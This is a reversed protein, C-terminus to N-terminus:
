DDLKLSIKTKPLAQRLAAIEAESFESRYLALQRLWPMELFEPPLSTLGLGSFDLIKLRKLQSIGPPITAFPYTGMDGDNCYCIALEELTTADYLQAPFVKLDCANITIRRIAPALAVSPEDLSKLAAVEEIILEELRTLSAYDGSISSFNTGSFVATVINRMLFFEPPLRDGDWGEFSYERIGDLYYQLGSDALLRVDEWTLPFTYFLSREKPLHRELAAQNERLFVIYRQEADRTDAQAKRGSEIEEALRYAEAVVRPKSM